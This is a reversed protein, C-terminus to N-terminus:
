EARGCSSTVEQKEVADAVPRDPGPFRGETRWAWPDAVRFYAWM